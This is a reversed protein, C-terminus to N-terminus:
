LVDVTLFREITALLEENEMRAKVLYGDAGINMARRIDAEAGRSTLVIVPLERTAKAARLSRLLEFGDMVPMELDTVVLRPRRQEIERLAEKGNIAERVVYGRQLLVERVVERAIESDDVVLVDFSR